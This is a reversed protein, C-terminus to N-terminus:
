QAKKGIGLLRQLLTRNQNEALSQVKKELDAWKQAQESEKSAQKDAEARQDTLMMTLKTKQDEAKTRQEESHELQGKLTSIQELLQTRERDREAAVDNLREKTHELQIKLTEPSDRDTGNLSSEEKEEKEIQELTKLDNGYVRHLESIEVVIEGNDDTGTSIKKKDIHRYFTAKSVSAMKAATVASVATASM